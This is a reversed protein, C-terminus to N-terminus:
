VVGAKLLDHLHLIGVPEKNGNPVILCTINFFEMRNLAKAALAEEEITKPNRSMIERAKLKFIEETREVLRRLDGDTFIGVLEKKDNVVTTAGFRKSTMELIVEKMNADESVMPISAGTHMVDKVKLLLRKGLYGGPHLLAFDEASFHREELLAIALADGMVLAATTSSTPVLNNPCAEEEVSVDLVIDSKEATQSGPSGTLSIIPVGLRKFLPFLQQLEETEGSKTIAIVVDDRRVLGLDGHLGEVPHLFLAATGTSNLTAAIKKGIIGSKGIGTVIVRGRCKLILEVAKQFESNIKKELNLIAEAEKRIVEKAKEIIM